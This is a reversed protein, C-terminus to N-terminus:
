SASRAEDIIAAITVREGSSASREAALTAATTEILSSFAIPMPAGDRVATVFSEIEAKQGKDASLARLRKRAGKRWVEAQTFNDLRASLGNASTEILEKPYRPDGQTMYNISALAGNDYDIMLAM